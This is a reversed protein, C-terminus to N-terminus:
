RWHSTRPLPNSTWWNPRLRMLYHRCEDCRGAQLELVAARHLREARGIGKEHQAAAAEWASVAQQRDGALEYAEALRDLLGPVMNQRALAEALDVAARVDALAEDGAKRTLAQDAASVLVDFAYGPDIEEGARRVHQALLGQRQPAYQQVAHAVEAHRRRAVLPMLDYAV